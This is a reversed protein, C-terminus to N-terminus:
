RRSDQRSRDITKRAGVFIGKLFGWGWCFHMTAFVGVNLLRDRVGETDAQTLSVFVNLALYSLPALYIVSAILAAFGTLVGALQLVLVLVSLMSAIVLAGPVFFRWPNSAGYRRVLQARWAGTAAMQQALHRWTARPWYTVRLEPNFWVRYGATRLRYNLEWDEGRRISTDFLGVAFLPERRFIGLYASEAEGPQGDRHYTAGGLGFRSNYARAIARQLPGVGQAHMVGGVNDAHDRELTYVGLETYNRALESHADVRIIVDHQAARIAANLGDPIHGAPNSVLTLEPHAQALRAALDDTGDTSPGLALILQKEGAYDQALVSDVAAELYDAENLVPM